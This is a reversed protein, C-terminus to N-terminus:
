KGEPKTQISYAVTRNKKTLYTNLVRKVDASTVKELDDLETFVMKWSGLTVHSEAMQSALGSNSDLGAIFAARLKTKVRKVAAEDIPDKKMKEILEDWAKELDEVTKGTNPVM